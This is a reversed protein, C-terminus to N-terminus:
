MSGLEGPKVARALKEAANAFGLGCLLCVDAVSTVGGSPKAAAAVARRQAGCATPHLAEAREGYVGAHADAAACM